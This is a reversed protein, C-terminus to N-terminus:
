AAYAQKKDLSGFRAHMWDQIQGFNRCTHPVDSYAYSKDGWRTAAHYKVPIPSIDGACMIYVCHLTHFMDIGVEYGEVQPNYLEDLGYHFANMAEEESVPFYDGFTLEEWARDVEPGAGSYNVPGPHPIYLNGHRDFDTSFGRDFSGKSDSRSAKLSSLFSLLLLFSPPPLPLPLWRM